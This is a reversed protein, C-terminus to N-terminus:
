FDRLNRFRLLNERPKFVFADTKDFYGCRFNDLSIGTRKSLMFAYFFTQTTAYKEKMAKPKYDWVWINGDEIRLLDIHGTLPFKSRFLKNFDRLEKAQLWVPVEVAISTKDKELMFAQVKSHNSKFRNKNVDLAYGTLSSVEHGKIWKIDLGPFSFNLCSSRPGTEFFDDPCDYFMSDLYKSLGPFSKCLYDVKGKHVRYFYYGGTHDLSIQKIM